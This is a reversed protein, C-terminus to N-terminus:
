GPHAPRIRKSARQCNRENQWIALWEGSAVEDEQQREADNECRENQLSEAKRGQDTPQFNHVIANRFFFLSQRAQLGVFCGQSTELCDFGRISGPGSDNFTKTRFVFVTDPLKAAFGRM